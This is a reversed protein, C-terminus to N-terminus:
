KKALKRLLADINQWFQRWQQREGEDLRGLVASDRVSTLDADLRWHMLRQRVAEQVGPDGLQILTVYLGLDSRLWQYAQWRLKLAVKDPLLCADKAQGAAALVASRAALYRTQQQINNARMPEAVFAEAALRAATAHLRKCPMQCLSALELRELASAPEAKSSLVATLLGELEILRQCRRVWAASPYPWGPRASGLTHGCQLSRLSESFRGQNELAHGLSCHAEPFDPKFRIAQRYAAEAEKARGQRLLVTGLNNHALHFNLKILIANRHASEAEELRGQGLLAGGLGSHAEFHDHKLRIAARYATEAETFKGQDRLTNGLNYYAEPYDHKLHIAARHAAEAEKHRGQPRLASGLNNYGFQHQGPQAARHDVVAVHRDRRQFITRDFGPVRFDDADEPLGDLFFWTVVNALPKAAQHRPYAARVGLLTTGDRAPAFTSRRPM